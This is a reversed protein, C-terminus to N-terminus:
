LISRYHVTITSSSWLPRDEIDMRTDGIEHLQRRTYQWLFRIRAEYSQNSDASPSVVMSEKEDDCVCVCCVCSSLELLISHTPIYINEVVVIVTNLPVLENGLFM